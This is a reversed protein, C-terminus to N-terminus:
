GDDEEPPEPLPQWKLPGDGYNHLAGSSYWGEPAEYRGVVARNPNWFPWWLLIERGDMPATSMPQWESMVQIFDLCERLAAEAAEARNKEISYGMALALNQTSLGEITPKGWAWSKSDDLTKLAAEKEALLKEITDAAQEALPVVEERDWLRLREVLAEILRPQDSAWAEQEAATPPDNYKPM